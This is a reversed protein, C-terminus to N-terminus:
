MMLKNQLDSIPSVREREKESEGERERETEGERESIRCTRYQAILGSLVGVLRMTRIILTWILTVKTVVPFMRSLFTRLLIRLFMRLFTM